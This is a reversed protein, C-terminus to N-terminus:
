EIQEFVGGSMANLKNYVERAFEEKSKYFISIGIDICGCIKELMDVTDIWGPISRMAEELEQVLCTAASKIKQM